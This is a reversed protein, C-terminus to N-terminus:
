GSSLHSSCFSRCASTYRHFTKSEIIVVEREKEKGKGKHVFRPTLSVIMAAFHGGGFMMLVWKREKVVPVDIGRATMSKIAKASLQEPLQLSKLEALVEPGDERKKGFSAVPLAARYIGYQTSPSATPAEFWLIASRPGTISGIEDEDLGGSAVVNAKQKRIM